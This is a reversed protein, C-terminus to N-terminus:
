YESQDGHVRQEESHSLPSPPPTRVEVFVMVWKGFPLPLAHTAADSNNRLSFHLVWWHTTGQRTLTQDAHVGHEALHPLPLCVLARLM